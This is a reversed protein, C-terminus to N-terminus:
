RTVAVCAITGREGRCLYKAFDGCVALYAALRAAITDKGGRRDIALWLERTAPRM